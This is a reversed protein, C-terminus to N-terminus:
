SRGELLAAYLDVPRSEPQMESIEQLRRGMRGLPVPAKVRDTDPGDFHKPNILIREPTGREHVAVIEAESLIQVQRSCGRVEVNQGVLHFPVSYARGEFQVLCDVAVRRTVCTDFPEPLVIPLQQLLPQEAEFAAMVSTGTAPCSRRAWRLQNAADSAAQLEEVCDWHQRYPNVGNRQDRIRREIKGKAEPSRVQCLDVHFRMTLSYRQYASTLKGWAGSGSAVAAPDNDIRVSAPVGGFARFAHNHSSLWALLTPSENWVVLDARSHSLTMSFAILNVKRGGILVAPFHAWDAQAQAGPPTEVRRRARVAPQPFARKMFRQLNRLSGPYDHEAVLYEHLDAVNAPALQGTGTLYEEIAGIFRAALPQQNARGDVAEDRIRRLQYRVAGETVGLQRAIERNSICKSALTRITVREDGGLKAM